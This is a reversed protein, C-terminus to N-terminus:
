LLVNDGEHLIYKKGNYALAYEETIYEGKMCRVYFDELKSRNQKLFELLKKREKRSFVKQFKDSDNKMQTMTSLVIRITKNKRYSYIHVHPECHPEGNNVRIIAIDDFDCGAGRGYLYLLKIKKLDYNFNNLFELLKFDLRAKQEVGDHEFAYLLTLDDNEYEKFLDNDISEYLDKVLTNNDCNYEYEFVDHECTHIEFKLKM